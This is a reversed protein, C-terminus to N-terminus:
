LFHSQDNCTIELTGPDNSTRWIRERYFLDVRLPLMAQVPSLRFPRGDKFLYVRAPVQPDTILDLHAALGPLGPERFPAWALPLGFFAVLRSRRIRMAQEDHCLDRRVTPGRCIRARSHG